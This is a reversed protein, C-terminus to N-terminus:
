IKGGYAPFVQDATVKILLNLSIILLIIWGIRMMAMRGRESVRTLALSVAGVLICLWFCIGGRTKWWDPSAM